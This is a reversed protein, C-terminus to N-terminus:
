FKMIAPEGEAPIVLGIPRETASFFFGSLYAVRIPGFVCMGSLNQQKLVQQLAAIRAQHEAPTIELKTTQEPM